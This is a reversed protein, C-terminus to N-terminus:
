RRCSDFNLMVRVMQGCDDALATTIGFTVCYELRTSTLLLCSQKNDGPLSKKIWMFHQILLLFSNVAREMRVIKSDVGDVESVGAVLV